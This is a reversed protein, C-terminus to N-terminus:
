CSRFPAFVYLSQVQMLSVSLQVYIQMALMALFYISAEAVIARVLASFKLMRKNRYTYQAIILFASIDSHEKYDAIEANLQFSHFWTGFATGISIPASLLKPNVKIACLNFVDIPVVSLDVVSLPEVFFSVLFTALRAVALTGFYVALTNNKFTIAYLRPRFRM